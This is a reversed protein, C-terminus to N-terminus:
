ASGPPSPSAPHCASVHSRFGHAPPALGLRCPRPTFFPLLFHALLSYRAGVAPAIEGEGGLLLREEALLAIVRRLAALLAPLGLLFLAANVVAPSAPPSATVPSSISRAM